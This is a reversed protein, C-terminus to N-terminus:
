GKMALIDALQPYEGKSIVSGEVVVIPLVGIGHGLVEQYVQANESFALPNRSMMYRHVDHGQVGLQEVMEHVRMLEADPSPGCVGTSCCMERDFMEIKM